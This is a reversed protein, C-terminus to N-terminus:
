TEDSAIEEIEQELRNILKTCGACLDDLNVVSDLPLHSEIIRRENDSLENIADIVERSLTIGRRLDSIRLAKKIVDM